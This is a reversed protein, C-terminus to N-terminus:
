TWSTTFAEWSSVISRISLTTKSWTNKAAYRNTDCKQDRKLNQSMAIELINSAESYLNGILDVLTRRTNDTSHNTANYKKNLFLTVSFISPCPWYLIKM